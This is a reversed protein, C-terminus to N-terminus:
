DRRVPRTYTGQHKIMQVIGQKDTARVLSWAHHLLVSSENDNPTTQLKKINPYGEVGQKLGKQKKIDTLDNQISKPIDGETESVEKNHM